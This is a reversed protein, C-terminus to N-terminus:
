MVSSILFCQPSNWSAAPRLRVVLSQVPSRSPGDTSVRHQLSISTLCICSKSARSIGFCMGGVGLGGWRGGPQGGVCLPCARGGSWLTGHLSSELSPWPFQPRPALRGSGVRTGKVEVEQHQPKLMRKRCWSQAIIWATDLIVWLSVKLHGSLCRFSCCEGALPPLPGSTCRLYLPIRNNRSLTDGVQM